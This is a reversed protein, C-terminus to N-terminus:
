SDQSQLSILISCGLPFWGQINMPLVSASASAGISQGGICVALVNSFVRMRLFISPLPLFPLLLHSPQIADSVWCIHIQAFEPFIHFVFSGPTSCDMPDCLPPCSKAVSCCRCSWGLCTDWIWVQLQWMWYQNWTCYYYM